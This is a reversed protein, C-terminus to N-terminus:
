GSTGEAPRLPIRTIGCLPPQTSTFDARDCRQRHPCVWGRLSHAGGTDGSLPFYRVRSTLDLGVGKGVTIIRAVLEDVQPTRAGTTAATNLADWHEVGIGAEALIERLKVDKALEECLRGFLDM